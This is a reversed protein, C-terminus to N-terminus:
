PRVFGISPSAGPPPASMEFLKRRVYLVIPLLSLVGWTAITSWPLAVIGFHRTFYIKAALCAAGFVCAIGIQFHILGLGNLFVGLTNGCCEMVTWVALGVLLLMPPHVGTGVWWGLLPVSFLLLLVAAASSVTFVFLLSRKLSRRVWLTDGRAIAEGYAPWLPSVLMIIMVSIMAFMRQAIAYDPVHVAGLIRTVVLNDASYAASVVLQLVFFLVGISVIQRIADKSVHRWRPRLEPRRSCFFAISNLVLAVLPGGAMACVLFPLGARLRIGLLLALLGLVSGFSQWLNARFGQQLGIQTRQVVDAPLNLAFCVAFVALAPGAESRAQVSTVRFFDAWPVWRYVTFFVALLCLAICALSAFASSVATKMANADDRGHAKALTNLLGNGIGFDAFGAMLLFSSITMWLGFRETGLFRLTLPVTVLSTAVQILRATAATVGSLAARRDRAVGRQKEIDPASL